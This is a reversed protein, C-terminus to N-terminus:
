GIHLVCALDMTAHHDIHILVLRELLDAVKLKNVALDGVLGSRLTHTGCIAAGRDALYVHLFRELVADQLEILELRAGESPRDPMYGIIIGTFRRRKVKVIVVGLPQGRSLLVARHHIAGRLRPNLGAKFHRRERLDVLKIM